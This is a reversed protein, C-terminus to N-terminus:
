KKEHSQILALVAATYPRSSKKPKGLFRSQELSVWGHCFAFLVNALEVCHARSQKKMSPVSAIANALNEFTALAKKISTENPALEGSSQGLMLAYHHPYAHATARYAKCLAIVRDVGGLKESAARQAAALRDFGEDVLAGLIESKGKFLSYVAMTTCGAGEAVRRVSLGKVGESMFITRAADLLATEQASGTTKPPPDILPKRLNM